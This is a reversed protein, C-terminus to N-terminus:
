SYSIPYRRDKDFSRSSIKVGPASQRRKFESNRVLSVVKYVITKDFGLDIIQEASLDKEIYNELIADLIQYDPLSDSDKQNHKLEASPEKTLIREPMVPYSQNLPTITIPLNHNRFDAIQFVETKYLDKIPNFAGCMDGYLTAYGTANESKNGTTLVISNTSNAISMLVLGRLRAQMNEKALDSLNEITASTMDVMDQVPIIKYETNILSATEKADELSEASTYKSPMMICTVSKAGIADVAISAVLASDIGGSLGIIVKQIKNNRLYERLGFVMVGYIEDQKNTSTQYVQNSSLKNNTFKILAVAEKYMPCIVTEFGNYMFSKGDFVIGDQAMVQNCYIFPINTEAFRQAVIQVRQSHKDKEYPSANPVLFIKAGQAKLRKCVDPFWIDECVPIGVKYGNIKVVLPNGPLFYRKEDFVGYNPLHYKYTEGIIRANQIVLVKSYLKANEYFPTSLILATNKIEKILLDIQRHLEKIFSQKQLLDECLYGTTVLEPLLCIDAKAKYSQAYYEKILSFNYDLAGTKPQVQGLM